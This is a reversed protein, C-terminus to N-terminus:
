SWATRRQTTTEAVVRGRKIVHTRDARRTLAELPDAADIIVLDAVCGPDAGYDTLGMTRAAAGTQM